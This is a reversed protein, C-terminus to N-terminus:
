NVLFFLIMFFSGWPKLKYSNGFERIEKFHKGEGLIEINFSFNDEENRIFNLRQIEKEAMCM